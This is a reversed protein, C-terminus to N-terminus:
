FHPANIGDPYRKLTIPRDKLHPLVYDAIRIYFDIVQGKTFGSPYLVKDLNSLAVDRGEIEIQHKKRAASVAKSFLAYTRGIHARSSSGSTWNPKRSPSPGVIRPPPSGTM